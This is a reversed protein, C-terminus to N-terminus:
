PCGRTTIMRKVAFNALLPYKDYYLERDPFPYKDLNDEPPALPNRVWGTPTKVLLSKVDSYDEGAEIRNMIDESMFM